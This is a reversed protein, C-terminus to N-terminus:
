EAVIMAGKYGDKILIEEYEQAKKLNTALGARVRYFIEEGNNYPTVQAYNYKRDLKKVLNEANKRNKFAGVQITFRGSYYDLPAYTKAASGSAAATVQGGLAVIEVPATGPRVIGIEKAATFSLDIIRGQVFPGRDNIRVVVERNNSLNKVNVHTGLPLTKHAATMAYMDYVEGNSTKKGHFQKGYWSGVGRQQFGEAHPRPQYWKGLVRYPKPYGAPSPPPKSKACGQVFFLVLGVVLLIRAAQNIEKKSIM